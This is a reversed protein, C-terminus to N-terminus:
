DTFHLHRQHVDRLVFWATQWRSRQDSDSCPIDDEIVEIVIRWAANHLVAQAATTTMREIM